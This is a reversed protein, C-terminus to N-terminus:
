KEENEINTLRVTESVIENLRGTEIEIFHMIQRKDDETLNDSEHMFMYTLGSLSAVPSRVLHSQEWAIKNLKKEQNQLKSEHSKVLDAQKKAVPEYIYRIELLLITVSLIALLIEGFIIIRLKFVSDEELLGVVLEMEKLFSAQNQYIQDLDNKTFSKARLFPKIFNVNASLDSLIKLTKSESVASIDLSDNSNLFANHATNWQYYLDRILTSNQGKLNKHFELSIRQSLMRQRGAVNILHADQRKQYLWFQILGQNLVILLVTIVAGRIFHNGKFM